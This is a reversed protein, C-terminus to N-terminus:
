RRATKRVPAPLKESRNWTGLLWGSAPTFEKSVLPGSNAFGDEPELPDIEITEPIGRGQAARKNLEENLNAREAVKDSPVQQFV